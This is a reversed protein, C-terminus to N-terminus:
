APVREADFSIQDDAQDPKGCQKCRLTTRGRFDTHYRM